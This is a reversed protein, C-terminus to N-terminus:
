EKENVQRMEIKEWWLIFYDVDILNVLKKFEEHSLLHIEYIEDVSSVKEALSKLEILDLFTRQNRSKKLISFILKKRENFDILKWTTSIRQIFLEEDEIKRIEEPTLTNYCFTCIHEDDINVIETHFYNRLCLKCVFVNEKANDALLNFYNIERSSKLGLFDFVYEPMIGLPLLREYVFLEIKDVDYVKRLRSFGVIFESYIKGEKWWGELLPTNFLFDWFKQVSVGNLDFQKAFDSDFLEDVDSFYSLNLFVRLNTSSSFIKYMGVEM